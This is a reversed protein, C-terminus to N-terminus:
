DTQDLRTWIQLPTHGRAVVFVNPPSKVIWACTRGAKHGYEVARLVDNLDFWTFIQDIAEGDCICSRNTLLAEVWSIEVANQEGHISTTYHWCTLFCWSLSLSKFGVHLTIKTPLDSGLPKKQYKDQPIGLKRRTQPGAIEPTDSRLKYVKPSGHRGREGLGVSRTRKVLAQTYVLMSFCAPSVLGRSQALYWRPLYGLWSYTRITLYLRHDLTATESLTWYSWHGKERMVLTM